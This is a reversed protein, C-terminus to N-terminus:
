GQPDIPLFPYTEKKILEFTPTQTNPTDLDFTGTFMAEPMVTPFEKQLLVTYRNMVEQIRQVLSADATWVFRWLTIHTWRAARMQTEKVKEQAIHLHTADSPMMKLIVTDRSAAIEGTTLIPATNLVEDHATLAIWQDDKRSKDDSSKHNLWVTTHINNIDYPVYKVWAEAAIRGIEESCQQLKETFARPYEYGLIHWAERKEAWNVERFNGFARWFIGEMKALYGQPTQISFIEKELEAPPMVKLRNRNEASWVYTMMRYLFTNKDADTYWLATFHNRIADWFVSNEHKETWAVTAREEKDNAAENVWYIGVLYLFDIAKRTGIAEEIGPLNIDELVNIHELGQLTKALNRGIKVSTDSTKSAKAQIERLQELSQIEVM